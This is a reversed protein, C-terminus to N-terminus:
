GAAQTQEDSHAVQALQRWICTLFVASGVFAFWYPATITGALKAIPGALASGAVLGAMVALLYVSSVRGQMRSPVARQRVSTSTTGWVFAEVGFCFFAALAVAPTRTLALVLWVTTEILLVARMIIALSLHRELWGYGFTGLLGGVAATTILLGFGVEGLGLRERSYLVLVSWACGFTVNFTFITVALTRLPPHRWLWRWGERMEEAVRRAAAGDHATGHAPLVVRSVLVVGLASCVAQSVFPWSRGATFLAAGIPPGALQNAMVFGGMMRANAAGLDAKDVIMPLIASSTTDSFTETVGLLFMVVLVVAISVLGTVLTTVLAALVAVRIGDSLMVLRRRNRRDAVVGAYLGFLLWPLRQLLAALAVLSPNSTQSAILLPGAALSIGDGLNGAWWSGLLWRFSRGLRGPAVSDM